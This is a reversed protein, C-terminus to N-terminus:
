WLYGVVCSVMGWVEGLFLFGLVGRFNVHVGFIEMDGYTSLFIRKWVMM